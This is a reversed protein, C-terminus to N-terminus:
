QCFCYLKAKTDNVCKSQQGYLNLRTIPGELSFDKVSSCYKCGVTSEFIAGSPKVTLSITYFKIYFHYQDSEIFFLRADIITNLYLKACQKYKRLFKNVSMLVFKAINIVVNETKNVPARSQCCCFHAPIGAQKCTRNAPIVEFLSIGRTFNNTGIFKKDAIALLTEYLDFHSTLKKANQRINFTAKPYLKKFWKPLVIYMFPLNQEFRGYYSKLISGFRFGHDSMFFLITNDLIGTKYIDQLHKKYTSDFTDYFLTVDHTISCEWFTAFFHQGHRKYSNIFKLTYDLIYEVAPKNNVCSSTASDNYFGLKETLEKCFPGWYHTTPQNIFGLKNYNFLGMWSEEEAFVTAYGKEHFKNWIFTCNDFRSHTDPWCEKLEDESKGSFLPILNPFSNDGVRHYGLYEIADLEKKLYNLTNPMQRYFHNRSVSDIGIILVNM